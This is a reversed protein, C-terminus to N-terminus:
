IILLCIIFEQRGVSDLDTYGKGSSTHVDVPIRFVNAGWNKIASLSKKDFYKITDLNAMGSGNSASMGRLVLSQEHQNVIQGYKITLKGNYTASPNSSPPYTVPPDDTSPNTYEDILDAM